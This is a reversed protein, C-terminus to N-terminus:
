RKLSLSSESSSDDIQMSNSSKAKEAKGSERTVKLLERMTKMFFKRVEEKDAIPALERITSQIYYTNNSFHALLINELWKRVFFLYHKWTQRSRFFCLSIGICWIITKILWLHAIFNTRYNNQGLLFNLCVSGCFFIYTYVTDCIIFLM